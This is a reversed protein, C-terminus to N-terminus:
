WCLGYNKCSGWNDDWCISYNSCSGFNILMVEEGEASIEAEFGGKLEGKKNENLDEFSDMFKDLASM